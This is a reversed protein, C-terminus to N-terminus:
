QGGFKYQSKLNDIVDQFAGYGAPITPAGSTNVAPVNSYDATQYSQDSPKYTSIGKLADAAAKKAIGKFDPKDFEFAGPTFNIGASASPGALTGGAGLSNIASSMEASETPGARYPLLSEEAQMAAAGARQGLEGRQLAFNSAFQRRREEADLAARQEAAKDRAEQSLALPTKVNTDFWQEYQQKAEQLTLQRAQIQTALMSRVREADQKVQDYNPNAVQEVQNTQPNFRVLYPNNEGAQSLFTPAGARQEELGFRKTDLGLRAEQLKREAAANEANQRDITQQRAAQDQARQEQQERQERQAREAHTEYTGGHAANYTRENEERRDQTVKSRDIEEQEPTRAPPTKGEQSERWEKNVAPDLSSGILVGNSNQPSQGEYFFRVETTGDAYTYTIYQGPWNGAPTTDTKPVDMGPKAALGAPDLPNKTSPYSIEVIEKPNRAM